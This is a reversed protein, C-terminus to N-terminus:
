LGMAKWTQPGVIGDVSLGKRQQFARVAAETAPGFVGDADIKLRRQVSAVDLGSDGKKITRHAAQAPATGQM